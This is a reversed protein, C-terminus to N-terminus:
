NQLAAVSLMDVFPAPFEARAWDQLYETIRVTQTIGQAEAAMAAQGGLARFALEVQRPGSLIEGTEAHRVTLAFEIDHVGGITYRARETVAHFRSLTLSVVVPTSGGVRSLLVPALADSLITEVQAYRDGYADGRWVIDAFPRISNAESVSLSRPVAIDLATISWDQTPAEVPPTIMNLTTNRSVDFPTGCASLGLMAVVILAPTLFKHLM